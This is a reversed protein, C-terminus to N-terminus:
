RGPISTSHQTWRPLAGSSCVRLGRRRGSRRPADTTGTSAEGQSTQRRPRRLWSPDSALYSEAQVCDVHIVPWEAKLFDFNSM